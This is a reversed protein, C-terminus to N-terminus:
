IKELTNIAEKPDDAKLIGSGVVLNSAGSDKLMRATETSVAGDVALTLHPYTRKLYSIRDVVRNDFDQGQFGVKEIGMCQVYSVYDLFPELTEIPTDNSIALGITM